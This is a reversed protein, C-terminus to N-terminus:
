RGTSGFGGNRIADTDDDETVGYPLFVGQMIKQGAGVSFPSSGENRLKVFIHGENDSFYYDADVIGVTNAFRTYYKFGLGSKPFLFLAWDDKIKCRVGTPITIDEGPELCFSLPSVFDYGASNKTARLPLSLINYAASVSEDIRLIEDNPENFTAIWDKKFQEYSVKEFKAVKNM